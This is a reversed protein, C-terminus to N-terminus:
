RRAEIDATGDVMVEALVKRDVVLQVIQPPRRDGPDDAGPSSAPRDLPAVTAGGPLTVLEENPKMNVVGPAIVRGGTHLRPFTVYDLHDIYVGPIRNVGTILINLGEIGTNVMDELIGILINMAGKVSGVLGDWIKWGFAEIMQMFAFIDGFTEMIVGGVSMVVDPGYEVAAWLAIFTGTLPNVILLFRGFPNNWIVGWLRVAGDRLENFHDLVLYTALAVAVFLLGLAIVPLLTTWIAAGFLLTSITAEGTWLDYAIIAATLAWQGVTQVVQAAWLIITRAAAIEAQVGMIILYGIFPIMLMKVIGLHDALFGLVHSALWVNVSAFTLLPAFQRLVPLVGGTFIHWLAVIITIWGAVMTHFYSGTNLTQDIWDVFGMPGGTTFAEFAGGLFGILPRLHEVVVGTDSFAAQIGPLADKLRDTAPILLQNLGKVALLAIPTFMRGASIELETFRNKLERQQNALGGQDKSLNKTVVGVQEMIMQQRIMMRTAEDVNKGLGMQQARQSVDQERIVIGLAKLGRMQGAVGRQISLMVQSPDLNYFSALDLGAQTLSESFPVLKDRTIGVSEALRAFQATTSELFPTPTGFKKQLNSIFGDTQKTLDGFVAVYRSHAKDADAAVSVLKVGMVVAAIGVGAVAMTAAKAIGIMAQVGGGFLGISKVAGLLGNSTTAVEGRFEAVSATAAKLEASYKSRGTLTLRTVLEEAAIAM